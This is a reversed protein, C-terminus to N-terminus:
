NSTFGASRGDHPVTVVAVKDSPRLKDLFKGAARTAVRGEGFSISDRDVAIVILRGLVSSANSSFASDATQPDGNRPRAEPRVAVFDASVVKRPKGDVTVAFEPGRLDAVPHGRDDVVSADVEIVEVGGRFIPQQALAGHPPAVLVVTLALISTR